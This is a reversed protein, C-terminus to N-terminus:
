PRRPHYYNDDDDRHAIRAVFIAIGSALFVLIALISLISM